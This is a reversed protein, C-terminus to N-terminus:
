LNKKEVETKDLHDKLKMSREETKAKDNQTLQLSNRADQLKGM